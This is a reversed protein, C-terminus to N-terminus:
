NGLNLELVTLSFPEFRYELDKGSLEAVRSFAVIREPDDRTNMVESDLAEDRDKLVHIEGSKVPAPFDRLDFRVTV